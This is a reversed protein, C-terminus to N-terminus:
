PQRPVPQDFFRGVPGAAPGGRVGPSLAWAQGSRPLRCGWRPGLGRNEDAAVPGFPVRFLAAPDLGPQAGNSLLRLQARPCPREQQSVRGKRSARDRRRAAAGLSASHRCSQSGSLHSPDSASFTEPQYLRSESDSAVAEPEATRRPHHLPPVLRNWPVRLMRTRPDRTNQCTRASAPSESNWGSLRPPPAASRTPSLAMM